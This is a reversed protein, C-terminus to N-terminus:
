AAHATSPPQLLITNLKLHEWETEGVFELAFENFTDDTTIKNNMRRIIDRICILCDTCNTYNCLEYQITAMNNLALCMLIASFTNDINNAQHLMRITLQYLHLAHHMAWTQNNQVGNVHCAIAFNFVLVTSTEFTATDIDDDNVASNNRRNGHISSGNTSLFLARDYVYYESILNMAPVKASPWCEVTPSSSFTHFPIINTTSSSPPPPPPPIRQATCQQQEHHCHDNEDHCGIYQYQHSESVFKGVTMVANTSSSSEAQHSTTTTASSTTTTTTTITSSVDIYGKITRVAKQFAQVAGLTHNSELFRIGTNNLISANYLPNM